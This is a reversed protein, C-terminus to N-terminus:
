QSDSVYSMYASPIYGSQETELNTVKIWGDNYDTKHKISENRTVGVYTKQKVAM